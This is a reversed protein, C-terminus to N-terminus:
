ITSGALLIIILTIILAALLSLSYLWANSALRAKRELLLRQAAPSLPAATATNKTHRAFPLNFVGTAMGLLGTPKAGRSHTVEVKDASEVTVIPAPREPPTPHQEAVRNAQNHRTATHQENQQNQQAQKLEQETERTTEAQKHTLNSLREYYQQRERRTMENSVDRQLEVFQRQQSKFETQLKRNDKEAAKRRGYEHGLLLVGAVAVVGLGVAVLKSKSDQQELEIELVSMKDQLRTVIQSEIDGGAESKKPAPIHDGGSFTNSTTFNNVATDLNDAADQLDDAADKLPETPVPAEHRARATPTEADVTRMVRRLVVRAFNRVREAQEILPENNPNITDEPNDNKQPTDTQEPSDSSKPVEADQSKGM